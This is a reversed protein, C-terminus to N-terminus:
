ETNDSVFKDSPLNVCFASFVERTALFPSKATNKFGKIKNIFQFASERELFMCIFFVLGRETIENQTTVIEYKRCIDFDEDTFVDKFRQSTYEIARVFSERLFIALSEDIKSKRKINEKDFTTSFYHSYDNRFEELEIFLQKLTAALEKFDISEQNYNELEKESQPLFDSNFVKTVILQRVLHSYIHNPTETIENTLFCSEDNIKDEEELEKLGFKAAIDNVILFVNHRAMNLYAGFYQPDQELTRKKKQFESQPTTMEM